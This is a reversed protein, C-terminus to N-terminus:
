LVGGGGGGAAPGRTPRFAAFTPLDWGDSTHRRSELQVGNGSGSSAGAALVAEPVRFSVRRRAVVTCRPASGPAAGLGADRAAAVPCCWLVRPTTQCGREHRVSFLPPLEARGHAAAALRM